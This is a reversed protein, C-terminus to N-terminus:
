IMKNLTKELPLVAHANLDLGAREGRLYRYYAASGIMAANDTCYAPDPLFIEIGEKKGRKLFARRLAGNASVGGALAIKPAGERQAAKFTNDALMKIVSAQFSAAMDEKSYPEGKQDMNHLMNIVATKPGSFSFDLHDQGRFSLPMRYAKPNGNEALKELAPGGPYPLGLVRAAKDIAEGAADDRTQGLMRYTCYDEVWVIQTHGGSVVLCLFPPTLEPYTILNASIHGEIHNVAVLPKKLAFALAKAYSVGTLLAGLLGPGATVAVADIGAFGNPLAQDVVEPLKPIHNRSAIEPVVGGYEKHIEIQSYVVNALVERGNKVVAASTEDCSTEIALVTVDKNERM